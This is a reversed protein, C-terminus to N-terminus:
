SFEPSLKIVLATLGFINNDAETCLSYRGLIDVITTPDTIVIELLTSRFM